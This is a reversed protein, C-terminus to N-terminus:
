KLDDEKIYMYTQSIAKHAISESDAYVKVTAEYAKLGPDHKMSITVDKLTDSIEGSNIDQLFIVTGAKMDEVPINKANEKVNVVASSLLREAEMQSESEQTWQMIQPFMPLAVVVFLSLIALSMIIEVLTFGIQNRIISGSGNFLNDQRGSVQVYKASKSVKSDRIEYM